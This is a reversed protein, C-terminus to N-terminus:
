MRTRSEPGLLRLLVPGWHRQQFNNNGNNNNNNNNPLSCFSHCRGIQAAASSGVLPCRFSYSPGTGNAENFRVIASAVPAGLERELLSELLSEAGVEPLPELKRQECSRPWMKDSNHSLAGTPKQEKRTVSRAFQSSSFRSPARASTRNPGMLREDECTASLKFNACLEDAACHDRM